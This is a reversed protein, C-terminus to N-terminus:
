EIHTSSDSAHNSPNNIHLPVPIKAGAHPIEAVFKPMLYGPVRKLLSTVIRQEENDTLAFHASGQIKDLKHPYYPLVGAAYLTHSLKALISPNDNVGKLLVSQNLLLIDHQKAPALAQHITDDIEQPHNCHVVLAVQLRHNSLTQWLASTM